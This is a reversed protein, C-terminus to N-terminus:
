RLLSLQEKWVKAHCFRETLLHCHVTDCGSLVLDVLDVIFSIEAVALIQVASVHLIKDLSGVPM